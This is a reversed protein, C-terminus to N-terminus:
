VGLLDRDCLSFEDDCLFDVSEIMKGRTHSHAMDDVLDQAADLDYTGPLGPDRCIHFLYIVRDDGTAIAFARSNEIVEVDDPDIGLLPALVTQFDVPRARRRRILLAVIRARREDDTGDSSLELEREYDSILEETQQPDAERILDTARIDIRALEDGGALMLAGLVSDPSLKWLHGPPLLLRLMRSYAEASLNGIM